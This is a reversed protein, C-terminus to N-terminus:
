PLQLLSGSGPLNQKIPDVFCLTLNNKIHKNLNMEQQYVLSKYPSTYFDFLRTISM